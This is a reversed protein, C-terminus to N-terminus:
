AATQASYGETLGAEFALLRGGTAIAEAQTPRQRATPRRQRALRAPTGAKQLALYKAEILTQASQALGLAKYAAIGALIPGPGLAQALQAATKLAPELVNYATAVAHAGGAIDDLVGTTVRGVKESRSLELALRAGSQALETLRPLAATGIAEAVQQIAVRFRAYSGAATQAYVAAQGSYRKSVEGIALEAGRRKDAAAAAAEQAKLELALNQLQIPSLAALDRQAQTLAITGAYKKAGAQTQATQAKAIDDERAKLADLQATYKPIVIGLRSLSQTNGAQARSLAVTVQALELHRARSIDEATSLLDLAQKSNKTQQILRGFGQAQEEFDFGTRNEGKELAQEVTEGYIKWQAGANKVSTQIQV